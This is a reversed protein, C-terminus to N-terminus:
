VPSGQNNSWVLASMVCRVAGDRWTEPLAIFVPQSMFCVVSDVPTGDVHHLVPFHDAFLTAPQPHIVSDSLAKISVRFWALWLSSVKPISGSRHTLTRLQRRKTGRLNSIHHQHFFVLAKWTIENKKGRTSIVSRTIYCRGAQIPLAAVLHTKFLYKM